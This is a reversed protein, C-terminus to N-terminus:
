DSPPRVYPALNVLREGIERRHRGVYVPRARAAQRDQRAWNRVGGLLLVTGAAVSAVVLALLM